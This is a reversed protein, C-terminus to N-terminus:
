KSHLTTKKFAPDKSYLHKRSLSVIPVIFSLCNLIPLREVCNSKSIAFSFNGEDIDKLRTIDHM